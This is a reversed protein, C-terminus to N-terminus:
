AARTASRKGIPSTTTASVRPRATASRSISAQRCTLEEDESNIGAIKVAAIAPNGDYHAGMARILATWKSLYIPDWPVPISVPTCLAPGWISQDWIFSFAQAGESFLWAPTEWGPMVRIVVVKNASAAQAVLSDLTTWMFTGDSPEVDNWSVRLSIGDVSQNALMSPDIQYQSVGHKTFLHVGNIVYVGHISPLTAAAGTLRMSTWLGAALVAAKWRITPM